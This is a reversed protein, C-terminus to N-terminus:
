PAGARAPKLRGSEQAGSKLKEQVREILKADPFSAERALDLSKKWAETARTPQMLRDFVDGLHEWLTEDGTGTSIKVAKELNPLAEAYKGLKFLVWGMSDLYAANDPESNLAKRIMGEAQELNKGQ